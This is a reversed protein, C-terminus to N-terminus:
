KYKVEHTVRLYKRLRVHLRLGKFLRFNNINFTRIM